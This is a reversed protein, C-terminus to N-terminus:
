RVGDRRVESAALHLATRKDYDGMSVPLGESILARLQEVDGRAAADCMEAQAYPFTLQPSAITLCPLAQM